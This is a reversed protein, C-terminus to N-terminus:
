WGAGDSKHTASLGAAHLLFGQTRGTTTTPAANPCARRWRCSPSPAISRRPKLQDEVQDLLISPPRGPRPEDTLGDLRL